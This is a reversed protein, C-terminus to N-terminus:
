SEKNDVAQHAHNTWQDTCDIRINSNSVVGRHKHGSIQKRGPHAANDERTHESSNLGGNGTYADRGTSNQCLIEDDVAEHLFNRFFRLASDIIADNNADTHNTHQNSQLRCVNCLVHNVKSEAANAAAPIPWDEQSKIPFLGCFGTHDEGRNTTISRIYNAIKQGTNDRVGFGPPANGHTAYVGKNGSPNYGQDAHYGSAKQCLILFHRQPIIM